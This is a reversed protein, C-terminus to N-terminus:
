LQVARRLVGLKANYADNLMRSLHKSAPDAELAARSEAIARDIVRLNEELVRVTEPDLEDRKATLVGTLEDIASQYTEEVPEFAVLAMTSGPDGVGPDAAIPPLVEATPSRKTWEHTTVATGAVLVVMAAVRLWPGTRPSRLLPTVTAAPGTAAAERERITSRSELRPAIGSWLDREPLLEEPLEAAAALLSRLAAEEARCGECAMLHRRVDREERPTLEGDVYDDLRELIADHTM